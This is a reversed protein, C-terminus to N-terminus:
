VVQRYSLPQQQMAGMQNPAMSSVPRTEAAGGMRTIMQLMHQQFQMQETRQQQALKQQQQMMEQQQLLMQGLFSAINNDNEPRKEAAQEWPKTKPRNESDERVVEREKVGEREKDVNQHIVTGKVHYGNKCEKHPCKRTNMSSFCMKVEHFEECGDKEGRCGGRGRDGNRLLKGCIRPHRFPCKEMGDFSKKGSLGHRCRGKKFHHCIPKKVVKEKEKDSNKKPAGDQSAGEVLNEENEENEEDDDEGEEGEEEEDEIVVEALEELVENNVKTNKKKKKDARLCKKELAEEGMKGVVYEDCKGCLFFWKNKREESPFCDQCAGVGCMRCTVQPAEQRDNTYVTNCKNCGLPMLQKLRHVIMTQLGIKTFKTVEEDKEEKNLLFAYTKTLDSQTQKSGVKEIKKSDTDEAKVKFLTTAVEELKLNAADTAIKCLVKDDAMDNPSLNNSTSRM